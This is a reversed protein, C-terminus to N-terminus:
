LQDLSKSEWDSIPLRCDAILFRAVARCRWFGYLPNQSTKMFHFRYWEEEQM